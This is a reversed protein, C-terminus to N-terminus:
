DVYVRSPYLVVESHEPFCVSGLSDLLQQLFASLVEANAAQVRKVLQDLLENPFEQPKKRLLKRFFGRVGRYYSRRVVALLEDDMEEIEAAVRIPDIVALLYTSLLDLDVQFELKEEVCVVKVVSVGLM